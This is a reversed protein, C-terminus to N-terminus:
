STPEPPFLERLKGFLESSTFPKLLLPVEGDRVRQLLLEDCCYGSMFLVKIAPRQRRLREALECGNMGPMQVDTLVLHIPGAFEGALHLAEAGSKAQITRIGMMRLFEVVVELVEAEDDTVLVTLNEVRHDDNCFSKETM